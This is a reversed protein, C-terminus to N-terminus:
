NWIKSLFKKNQFTSLKELLFQNKLNSCSNCPKCVPWIPWNYKWKKKQESAPTFVFCMVYVEFRFGSPNECMIDPFLPATVKKVICWFWEPFSCTQYFNADLLFVYSYKLDILLNLCRKESIKIRIFYIWTLIWISIFLKHMIQSFIKSRQSLNQNFVVTKKSFVLDCHLTFFREIKM